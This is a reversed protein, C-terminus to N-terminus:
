NFRFRMSCSGDTGGNNRTVNYTDTSAGSGITYTSATPAPNVSPAVNVAAIGRAIISGTNPMGDDIKTDINVATLPAIASTGFNYAGTAATISTVPSLQFYNLGGNAYVIFYQRPTIKSAPLSQDVNTVNSTLLGTSPVINGNGNSGFSGDILNAESLHRWFGLTEGIGNIGNTSGGEILANGDGQGTMAANSLSLLGFAAANAQLMDGPMANFKNRFTNVSANYKEVQSITARIEAAKILDQGVLIGGVILGIIVLVISLEILTFGAQLEPGARTTTVPKM